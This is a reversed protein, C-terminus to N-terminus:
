EATRVQKLFDPLLLKLSDGVKIEDNNLKQFIVRVIGCAEDFSCGEDILNVRIKTVLQTMADLEEISYNNM